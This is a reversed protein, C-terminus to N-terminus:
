QYLSLLDVNENPPNEELKIMKNRGMSDEQLRIRKRSNLTTKITEETRRLMIKNRTM